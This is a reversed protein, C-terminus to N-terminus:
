PVVLLEARGDNDFDGAAILKAPFQVGSCDIDADMPHNPIPAMHRWAGAVHDFKMAWLDNGRSGEAKPVVVIEDVGDGDYDAVLVLKASFANASCDIDAGIPHNPIPAMHQWTSSLLDYKMVWLDNGASSDVDPAAAVETLGDGDFDGVVVFRAPFKTGSCDIDAQM